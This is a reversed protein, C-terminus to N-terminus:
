DALFLPDTFGLPLKLTLGVHEGQRRAVVAELRRSDVFVAVPQAETLAAKCLIGLGDRSVDLLMAEAEGGSFVIRCPRNAPVRPSRRRQKFKPLSLVGFRDIATADGRAARGLFERATANDELYDPSLHARLIPEIL